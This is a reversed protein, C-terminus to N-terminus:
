GKRSFWRQVRGKLSEWEEYKLFSLLGTLMIGHFLHLNMSYHTLLHFSVAVVLTARRTPAWWLLVPALLEFALVCWTMMRLLILSETLFAPMPFKVSDDLRFVYYLATGDIWEIGDSKQIASCGYILCMQIQFLRLPWAPFRHVSPSNALSEPGFMQLQDSPPVFILYFAFLRFVADESDILMNNAHQTAVLLLFCAAATIRPRIGATLAIGCLALLLLTTTVYFQTDPVLSYLSWVDPDVVFRSAEAPLWTSQGFFLQRDIGMWVTWIVLLVGYCRRLVGLMRLDSPQMWFNDVATWWSSRIDTPM